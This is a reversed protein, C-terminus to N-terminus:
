VETKPTKTALEAIHQQAKTIWHTQSPTNQAMEIYKQFGSMALTNKGMEIYTLSLNFLAESYSPNIKLATQYDNMAPEFRALAFYCVGRNYYAKVNTPNIKIVESFDNIAKDFQSEVRCAIARNYLAKAYNPKYKLATDFDRIAEKTKGSTHLAIGRNYYADGYDPKLQIAKNYDSIAEDIMNISRLAIGRDHYVEAYDPKKKIVENYCNIAEKKYGLNYLSIGKNVMEWIALDPNEENDVYRKNVSKQYIVILDEKIKDFSQYRDEKRKALCRLLLKNLLDSVNELPTPKVENHQFKYDSLTQSLFPPRGKIMEYLVCGFSYIDARHDVESGVWQEPAMYPPTGMISGARTREFDKIDVNDDKLTGKEIAGSLKVLGFDTIKLIRERTVMLNAPKIDRYVFPRNMEKFRSAAFIMGSCFQIGFNISRALDLGGNVIWGKLDPGYQEDGVIFEMFIYPLDDIKNIYEARVINPHKELRVWIEAEWMFRDALSKDTLFKEQLSKLVVPKKFVHDFCLYVIGMGGFKIDFIEYRDKIKDKIRYKGLPQKEAM